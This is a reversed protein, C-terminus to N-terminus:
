FDADDDEWDDPMPIAHLEGCCATAEDRVEHWCYPCIWRAPPDTVPLADAWARDDPENGPIDNTTVGPPMNWTSM